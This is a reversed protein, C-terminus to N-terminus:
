MPNSGVGHGSKARIVEKFVGGGVCGGEATRLTLAEVGSDSPVHEAWRKPLTVGLAM